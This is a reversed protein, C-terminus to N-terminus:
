RKRFYITGVDEYFDGTKGKSCAAIPFGVDTVFKLLEDM